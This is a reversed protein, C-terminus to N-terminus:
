TLVTETGQKKLLRNPAGGSSALAAANRNSILHSASAQKKKAANQNPQHFYFNPQPKNFLRTDVNRSELNDLDILNDDRTQDQELQFSDTPQKQQKPTRSHTMSPLVICIVALIVMWTWLYGVLQRM